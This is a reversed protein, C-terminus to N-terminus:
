IRIDCRPDCRRTMADRYGFLIAGGRREAMLLQGLVQAAFTSRITPGHWLPARRSTGTQCLAQESSRGATAASSAAEVVEEGDLTKSHSSSRRDNAQWAADRM